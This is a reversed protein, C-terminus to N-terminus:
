WPFILLSGTGYCQFGQTLGWIVKIVVLGEEYYLVTSWLLYMSIKVKLLWLHVVHLEEYPRGRNQSNGCECTYVKTYWVSLGCTKCLLFSRCLTAQATSLDAGPIKRTLTLILTDQRIAIWLLLSKSFSELCINHPRCARTLCCIWQGRQLWNVTPCIM